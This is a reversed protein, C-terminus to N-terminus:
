MKAKPTPWVWDGEKYDIQTSPDKEYVVKGGDDTQNWGVSYLLYTGDPRLQYHYPHGNMIDHPLEAICAPVLADLSGPYVGHALRYRELACAIRAEDVRWVQTLAFKISQNTFIPASITFLFNQPVLRWPLAQARETEREIKRNVDPFVRRSQPDISKLERFLFDIIKTKEQDLWGRPWLSYLSFAPSKKKITGKVYDFFPITETILEGRLTFQYQSLFDSRALESQLDALQADNWAHRALGDAIAQSTVATIAIDVLGAVLSPDRGVGAALKYNTKIDELALDPQHHDLALIAHLTLIRSLKIQTTIPAFSRTALPSITYDLNLRFLPHTTAAALFDTLFPYIANFQALTDEPPKAGKFVIAYDTAMVDRIKAMDPLEGM